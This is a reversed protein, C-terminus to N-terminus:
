FITGEKGVGGGESEEEKNRRTVICATLVRRVACVLEMNKLMRRRQLTKSNKVAFYKPTM